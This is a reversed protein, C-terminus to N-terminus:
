MCWYKWKDNKKKEDVSPVSGEMKGEMEESADVLRKLWRRYILRTIM